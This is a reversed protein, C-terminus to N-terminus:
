MYRKWLSEISWQFDLGDSFLFMPFLFLQVIKGLLDGTHTSNTWSIKSTNLCSHSYCVLLIRSCQLNLSVWCDQRSSWISVLILLNLFLQDSKGVIEFWYLYWVINLFVLQYHWKFLESMWWGQDLAYESHQLVNTSFLFQYRNVCKSKAQM